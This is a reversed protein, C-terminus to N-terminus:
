INSSVWSQEMCKQERSTMQKITFMRQSSCMDKTAGGSSRPTQQPQNDRKTGMKRARHPHETGKLEVRNRYPDAGINRPVQRHYTTVKLLDLAGSYRKTGTLGSNNSDDEVRAARLRSSLPKGHHDTCNDICKFGPSKTYYQTEKLREAVAFLTKTTKCEDSERFTTAGSNVSYGGSM